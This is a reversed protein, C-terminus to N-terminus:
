PTVIKAFDTDGATGQVILGGGGATVLGVLEEDQTAAWVHGARVLAAYDASMPAPDREMLPRYVVFADNVIVELRPVDASLARRVKVRATSVKVVAL